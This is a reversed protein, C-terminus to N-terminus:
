ENPFAPRESFNKSKEPPKRVDFKDKANLIFNM